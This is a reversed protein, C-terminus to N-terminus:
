VCRSTYLLCPDLPEARFQVDCDDFTGIVERAEFYQWVAPDDLAGEAPQHTLPSRDRICM